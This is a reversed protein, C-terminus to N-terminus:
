LLVQISWYSSILKSYKWSCTFLKKSVSARLLLSVLWAWPWIFLVTNISLSLMQLCSHEKWWETYWGWCTICQKMPILHSIESIWVNCEYKLCCLHQWVCAEKQYFNVKELLLELWITAMHQTGNTLVPDCSWLQSCLFSTFEVDPLPILIIM